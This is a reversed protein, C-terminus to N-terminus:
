LFFLYYAVFLLFVILIILRMNSYRQSKRKREFHVSFSGKSLTRTIEDKKIGMEQEIMRIREERKEKREDYYIPDYNFVKHKPLKFFRPIGM